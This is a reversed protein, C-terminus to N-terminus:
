TSLRARQADASAANRNVRFLVSTGNSWVRTLGATLRADYAPPDILWIYDFAARPVRRLAVDIMRWEPHRCGAPVVLQSPDGTFGPANLRVRLLQAGALTWQDNAFAHRRVIAMAPLHDFRASTWTIDCATGVFAAVRSGRPIHNLAMLERDFARDYAALSTTTALTRVGFFTLGALALMGITRPGVGAAPRVALVGVALLFPALRMDAYASGLLVRPLLLYVLALLALGCALARSLAFAKSFLAVLVLSVILWVAAADFAISRDALAKILYELKIPLNFWDGTNGGADGSRWLLILILPPALPLCDLAGRWIAAVIGRGGERAAAFAAAFALLGLIAWGFIHTVWLGLSIAVFVYARMRLRGTRALRLWLALALFAFAMSLSFNVFGFLFPFNYALPLAFLATPPIRGHAEHATWLFGAVTLPPIALVILKVGLELGFLRSMPVVLLDVGLNGVLAWKFDFFRSLYPSTEGDLQVRYRGMHGALDTLPAVDPWLLPAAALLVLLLLVSPRSWWSDQAYPQKSSNNVM